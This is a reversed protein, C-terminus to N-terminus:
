SIADDAEPVARQMEARPDRIQIRLRARLPV